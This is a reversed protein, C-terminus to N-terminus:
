CSLLIARYTIIVIMSGYTNKYWRKPLVHNKNYFGLICPWKEFYICYCFNYETKVM